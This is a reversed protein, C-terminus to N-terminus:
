LARVVRPAAAVQGIRIGVRHRFQMRHDRDRHEETGIEVGLMLEAAHILKPFDQRCQRFRIKQAHVLLKIRLRGRTKPPHHLIELLTRWCRSELCFSRRVATRCVLLIRARLLAKPARATGARLPGAGAVVGAGEPDETAVAVPSRDRGAPQPKATRGAEAGEAM